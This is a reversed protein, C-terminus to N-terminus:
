KRKHRKLFGSVLRDEKAEPTPENSGIASASEPGIVPVASADELINAMGHDRMEKQKLVIAHAASEPSTKGDYKLTSLVEKAGDMSELAEIGKIRESEQKVAKTEIAQVIDPFKSRLEQEDMYRDDEKTIQDKVEEIVEEFSTVVKDILGIELAKSAIFVKGQGYEKKVDEVTVGRGSAVREHFVSEIDDVMNQYEEKGIDSTPSPAKFQAHKSTFTIREYGENALALSDDIFTAIVGISGIRSTPTAFIKSTSSAVWYLASAGLGDIFSYIPKPFNSIYNAFQETGDVSGGPSNIDLIIAKIKSDNQCHELVKTLIDYASGGTFYTYWTMYRSVAGAISIVAIGNVVRLPDINSGERMETILAKLFDSDAQIAQLENVADQTMLYPTFRKKYM